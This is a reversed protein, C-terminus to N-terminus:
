HWLRYTLAYVLPVAPIALFMADVAWQALKDSFPADRAPETKGSPPLEDM